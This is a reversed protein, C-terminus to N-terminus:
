DGFNKLCDDIEKLYQDIQAQMAERNWKGDPQAAQKLAEHREVLADYAGNQQALRSELEALQEVLRSRDAQLQKLVRELVAARGTIEQLRQLLDEM